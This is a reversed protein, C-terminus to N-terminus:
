LFSSSCSNIERVATDSDLLAKTLLGATQRLYHILEVGESDRFWLSLLKVELTPWAVSDCAQTDADGSCQLGGGQTERKIKQKSYSLMTGVFSVCLSPCSKRQCWWSSGGGHALAVWGVTALLSALYGRSLFMCRTLMERWGSCWITM